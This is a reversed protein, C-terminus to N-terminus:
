DAKELGSVSIIRLLPADVQEVGDFNVDLFWVSGTALCIGQGNFFLDNCDEEEMAARDGDSVVKDSMYSLFEEANNVKVDPYMTIPYRIMTSITKWDEDLYAQRAKAAFAEVETKNLTTVGSYANDGGGSQTFRCDAAQPEKEDYWTLYGDRFRLYGKGNSWILTEQEPANPDDPFTIEAKVGNEYQLIEDQAGAVAKMRWQM